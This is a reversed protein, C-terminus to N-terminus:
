RVLDFEVALAGRGIVGWFAFRYRGAPLDPCVRLDHFHDEVVGSETLEFSWEFGDGPPHSVAEDTYVLPGEDAGRVDQWGAETYVELNYKASNGTEVIENAVNILRITVIDGREYETEEVRLALAPDGEEDIEGSQVTGDDYGAYHREFAEDDCELPEVPAPDGGPQVYGDLEGPDASLADDVSGTVTSEEGWGDTVDLAVEDAPEDVFSVKLLASPRTVVEACDEDLDSEDIVTAAARLRDGEIRVDEVELHSHCANPGVSEVLILRETDYDVDEVFEEFEDNPDEDFVFPLLVSREREGTDMIVARGTTDEGDPWSPGVGTRVAFQVVEYEDIGDSPRGNDSGTGGCGGLFTTSISAGAISLAGRRGIRM